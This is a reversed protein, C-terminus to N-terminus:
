GEDTYKKLLEEYYQLERQVAEKEARSVNFKVANELIYRKADIENLYTRIPETKDDNLGSLNQKFHYTEELVESVTANRRFMLVNGIASATAHVRELHKEVEPTGRIIEAGNKRAEITLENFRKESIEPLLNKQQHDKKFMETV